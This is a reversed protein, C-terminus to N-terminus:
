RQPPNVRSALGEDVLYHTPVSTIGAAKVFEANEPANIRVFKVKGAYARAVKEYARASLIGRHRGKVRGEADVVIVQPYAGKIEYRDEIERREEDSTKGPDIVVFYARRALAAM